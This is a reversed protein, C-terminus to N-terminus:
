NLGIDYLSTMATVLSIVVIGIVSSIMLIAIPEALKGLRKSSERVSKDIIETALLLMEGLKGAKTGVGALNLIVPELDPVKALAEDLTSGARLDRSVEDFAARSRSGRLVDRALGVADLISARSQLALGVTRTWDSLEKKRLLPGVFPLRQAFAAIAQQGEEGRALWILGALGGVVGVLIFLGYERLGASMAFVTRSLGDLGSLDDGLMSEFRPVVFLFMFLVAILGVVSLFLPYTLASRLESKLEEQFKLQEAIITLTSPLEGTREGLAVLSPVLTPLEPFTSGLGESLKSGSRLQRILEELKELIVAHDVMRKLSELAELLPIGASLLVAIQQIFQYYDASKPAKTKLKREAKESLQLSYVSIRRDELSKLAAAARGAQLTGALERGDESMGKYRFSPM